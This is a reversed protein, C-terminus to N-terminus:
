FYGGKLEVDKCGKTIPGGIRCYYYSPVGRNCLDSDANHFFLKNCSRCLIHVNM